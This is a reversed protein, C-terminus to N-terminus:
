LHKVNEKQTAPTLVGRTRLYRWVSTRSVGYKKALWTKPPRNRIFEQCLADITEPKLKKWSPLLDPRRRTWHLDGRQRTPQM